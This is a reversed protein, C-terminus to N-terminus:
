RWQPIHKTRSLAAKNDTLFSFFKKSSSYFQDVPLFCNWKGQGSFKLVDYQSSFLFVYSVPFNNLFCIYSMKTKFILFFFFKRFPFVPFCKQVLTICKSFFFSFSLFPCFLALSSQAKAETQLSLGLYLSSIAAAQTPPWHHKRHWGM